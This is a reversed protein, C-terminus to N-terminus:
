HKSLRTWTEVVSDPNLSMSVIGEEAVLRRLRSPRESGPGCIGIYKGTARCATIARSIM